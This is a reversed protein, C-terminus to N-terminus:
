WKVDSQSTPIRKKPLKFSGVGYKSFAPYYDIGTGLDVVAGEVANRLRTCRDNDCIMTKDIECFENMGTVFDSINGDNGMGDSGMLGWHDKADIITVLYHSGLDRGAALGSFSGGIILVRRRFQRRSLPPLSTCRFPPIFDIFHSSIQHVGFDAYSFFLSKFFVCHKRCFM